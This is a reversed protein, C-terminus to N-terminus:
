SLAGPEPQSGGVAPNPSLGPLGGPARHTARYVAPQGSVAPPPTGVVSRGALWSPEDRYRGTSGAPSASDLVTSGPAPLGVVPAGPATSEFVTSQVATPQLATPELVPSERVTSEAVPSESRLSG